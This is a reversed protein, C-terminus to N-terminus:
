EVSKESEEILDHIETRDIFNNIKKGDSDFSDNLIQQYYKPDSKELKEIVLRDESNYKSFQTTEESNGKRNEILAFSSTSMLLTMILITKKM